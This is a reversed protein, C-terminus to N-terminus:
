QPVPWSLAFRLCIHKYCEVLAPKKYEVKLDFKDSRFCKFTIDYKCSVVTSQIAIHRYDYFTLKVSNSLCLDFQKYLRKNPANSFDCVIRGDLYNNM